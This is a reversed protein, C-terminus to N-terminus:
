GTEVEMGGMGAMMWGKGAECFIPPFSWPRSPKPQNRTLFFVM